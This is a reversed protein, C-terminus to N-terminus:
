VCVEEMARGRDGINYVNGSPCKYWSGPKSQMAKIIMQKEQISPEKVGPYRGALAKLECIASEYLVTDHIKWVQQGNAELFQQDGQSM